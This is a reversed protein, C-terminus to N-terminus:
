PRKPAVGASGPDPWSRGSRASELGDRGRGQFPIAEGTADLHYAPPVLKVRYGIDKKLQELNM